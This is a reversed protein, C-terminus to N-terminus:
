CGGQLIRRLISQWAHAIIMCPLYRCLILQGSFGAIEKPVRYMCVPYVLGDLFWLIGCGAPIMIITHTGIIHIGTFM